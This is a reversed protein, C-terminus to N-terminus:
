WSSSPPFVALMSYFAVGAATLTVNDTKIEKQTRKRHRAM